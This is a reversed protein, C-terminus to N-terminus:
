DWQILWAETPWALVSIALAAESFHVFEKQYIVAVPGTGPVQQLLCRVYESANASGMVPQLVADTSNREGSHQVRLNRGTRVSDFVGGILFAAAAIGWAVAGWEQVRPSRVEM